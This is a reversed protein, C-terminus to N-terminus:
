TRLLGVAWLDMETTSYAFTGHPSEEGSSISVSVEGDKCLVLSLGFDVLTWGPSGTPRSPQKCLTIWSSNLLIYTVGFCGCGQFTEGLMSSAMGLAAYIYREKRRIACHM